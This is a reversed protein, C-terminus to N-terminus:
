QTLAKINLSFELTASILKQIDSDSHAYSIAGLHTPLFFINHYTMLYLYYFHQTKKDCLREDEVSKIVDVESTLFHTLLISGIGTTQTDIGAEAFVKDIGKRAIEGLSNIKSYISEANEILYKVTLYGAKMSIPNASFTGGGIRTSDKRQPNAMEMIESKGAVAGVPFGGGIIKGMTLLDAEIGYYQQAGGLGLRFGTIVEDFVLLSGNKETDERIIRLFEKDAPLGGGAGMVPEIIVCALDNKIGKFTQEFSSIDNFKFTSIYKTEEELIGSTEKNWVNKILNSNYGHWGGSVKMIYRRKTYARALRTAYMTAESGSNCFRIKEANPVVKKILEALELAYPNPAGLITGHKVQESIENMIFDPSHGLILSAHGQWYDTYENEDVDWVKNAKGRKLFLPYPEYFRIDHNVGNVFINKAREFMEKSTPTKRKYDEFLKM